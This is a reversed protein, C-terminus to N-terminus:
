AITQATTAYELTEAEVVETREVSQANVIVNSGDFTLSVGKGSNAM